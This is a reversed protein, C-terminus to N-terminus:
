WKLLKEINKNINDTNGITIAPKTKGHFDSGCSVILDNKLCYDLYKESLEPSHYNSYVELGEIGTKVIEDLLELDNDVQKGPHAFVVTGGNDKIGKVVSELSPFNVEAYAAKGQSCIDWYFNVYPNDSREGGQRYPKLLENNNNEPDALAVEAIMEGTAIGMRMIKDLEKQNVVIGLKRVKDIREITAITEQQHYQNEITKFFNATHDMNYALIHLNIGKYTCDIEVAPIYKIGYKEALKLGESIAKTSNHDAIALVDVNEKKALEMIEKVSYDGDDSYISHIHLDIKM